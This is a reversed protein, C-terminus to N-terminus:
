GRAHSEWWSEAAGEEWGPAKRSFDLWLQKVPKGCDKISLLAMGIRSWTEEDGAHSVLFRLASILANWDSESIQTLSQSTNDMQTLSSEGSPSSTAPSSTGSATVGDPQTSPRSDKGLATLNQRLSDTTAYTKALQEWIQNLQDLTLTPLSDPLGPSWLYRVGSSHSGAAVFQQGDALLEIRGHETKIIRKKCPTDMRFPILFKRSNTRARRAVGFRDFDLLRRIETSQEADEIDVDLAYVGSIPGTRVCINLRPDQMWLQLENSLIERSQWKTLGHAEGSRNFQSPIKGVKGELASGALVRVDPGAPVCPLLNGGLGLVFDFHFWEDPTAGRQNIDTV